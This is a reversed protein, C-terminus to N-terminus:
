SKADSGSRQAQQLVEGVDVSARPWSSPEAAAPGGAGWTGRVAPDAADVFYDALEAVDTPDTV